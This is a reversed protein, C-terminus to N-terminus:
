PRLWGPPVNARRAEEEARATNRRDALVVAKLRTAETLAEEYERRLVARQSISGSGDFNAELSKVRSVMAALHLEDTEMAATLGQMRDKWYAEDKKAVTKYDAQRAQEDEVIIPASPKSSGAITVSPVEKLDKNSYVKAESSPKRDNVGEADVKKEDAEKKARQEATKKAVDALSQAQVGIACVGVALVASLWSRM